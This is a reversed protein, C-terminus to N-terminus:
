KTLQGIRKRKTEKNWNWTPQSWTVHKVNTLFSKFKTCSCIADSSTSFFTHFASGGNDGNVTFLPELSLTAFSVLCFVFVGGVVDACAGGGGTVDAGADADACADPGGAATAVLTSPVFFCACVDAGCCVGGGGTVDACADADACADTGGAGTAVLTSAVFFGACVDAGSCVGIGGTVDAGEGADACADTGGAGTAVLTSAVFFVACVDAGSRVGIGGTVGAGSDVFASWFAASWVAIASVKASSM